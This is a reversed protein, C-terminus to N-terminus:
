NYQFPNEVDILQAGIGARVYRLHDDNVYEKCHYRNSQIRSFLLSQMVKMRPIQTLNEVYNFKLVLVCESHLTYSLISHIDPNSGAHRVPVKAATNFEYGPSREGLM